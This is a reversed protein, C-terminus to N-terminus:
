FHLKFSFDWFFRDGSPFYEADLPDAFPFKYGARVGLYVYDFIDLAVGFGSSFLFGQNEPITCKYLRGYYGADGFVYAMPRLGAVHFLAPGVARLELSAEAKTAAEYGWSRYGRVSDGLGDRIQRGGFSTLVYLPIRYGDAYDAALFGAAYLAFGDTRDTASSYLPKYGALKITGRSFDTGGLFDLGKPGYEFSLEAEIGQKAGDASQVVTEGGVGAMFSLSFLGNADSFLATPLTQSNKEYRARGMAFFELWRAGDSGAATSRFAVGADVEINPWYFWQIGDFSPTLLIAGTTADRLIHRDQYGGALRVDFFLGDKKTPIRLGADIGTPVPIGSLLAHNFRVGNLSYQLGEAGLWGPGLLVGCLIILLRMYVPRRKM